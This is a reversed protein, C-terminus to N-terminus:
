KKTDCMNCPCFIPLLVRYAYLKQELGLAQITIHEQIHIYIHISFALYFINLGVLFLQCTYASPYYSLDLSYLLSKVNKYVTSQILLPLLSLQPIIKWIVGKFYINHGMM